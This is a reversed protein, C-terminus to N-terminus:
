GIEEIDRSVIAPKINHNLSDIVRQLALLADSKSVQDARIDTRLDEIDRILMDVRKLTFHNM